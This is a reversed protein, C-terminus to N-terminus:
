IIYVQNDHTRVYVNRKFIARFMQSRRKRDNAARCLEGLRFATMGKKENMKQSWRCVAPLSSMFPSTSTYAATRFSNMSMQNRQQLTGFRISRKPIRMKHEYKHVAIMSYYIHTYISEKAFHVLLLAKQQGLGELTETRQTFHGQNGM